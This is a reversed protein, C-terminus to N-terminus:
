LLEFLNDFHSSYNSYRNLIDKFRKSKENHCNACLVVLNDQDDNHKDGDWHDITLSPTTPDGCKFGCRADINECGGRSKIFADREARGSTRHFSCFAKWKFGPTGDVKIYKKHYGVKNICGPKACPPAWLKHTSAM